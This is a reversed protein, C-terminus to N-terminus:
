KIKNYKRITNNLHALFAMQNTEVNHNLLSVRQARDRIQNRISPSSIADKIKGKLDDINDSYIGAMNEILYRSCAIDKPAYLILINGSSITDAIKTSFGYKLSERWYADNCEAHLLFDSISIIEKVKDYSVLGHFKIASCATLEKAVLPDPNGYVNLYYSPSITQLMNSFEIIAKYRNYGFNGLYSFIPPTSMEEKPNFKLESSTYITLGETGYKEFYDDRLANNIYISSEAKNIIKTFYKLYQKKLIPFFLWDFYYKGLWNNDFLCYGETNFIVLPLNLRESVKYAIELMFASDSSQLVIIEPSFDAIWKGLEKSDWAGSMWVLNRICMKLANKVSTKSKNLVEVRGKDINNLDLRKAKKFRIFANKVNEDTLVYYNNCLKFDPANFKICFQAISDIPWDKFYMGLTRGNSTMQSVCENSIILVKPHKKM